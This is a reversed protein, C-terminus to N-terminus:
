ALGFTAKTGCLAQGRHCLVLSHRGRRPTSACSRTNSRRVLLLAAEFLLKEVESEIWRASPVEGLGMSRRTRFNATGSKLEGEAQYEAGTGRQQQSSLRATEVGTDPLLPGLPM